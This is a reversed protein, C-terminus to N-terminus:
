INKIQSIYGLFLTTISLKAINEHWTAMHASVYTVEEFVLPHKKGTYLLVSTNSILNYPSIKICSQTGYLLSCQQQATLAVSMQTQLLCLSQIFHLLIISSIKHETPPTFANSAELACSHLKTYLYEQKLPFQKTM